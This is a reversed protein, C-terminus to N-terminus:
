GRLGYACLCFPFFGVEFDGALTRLPKGDSFALSVRGHADHMSILLEAFLQGCRGMGTRILVCSKLVAAETGAAVVTGIPIVKKRSYDRFRMAHALM